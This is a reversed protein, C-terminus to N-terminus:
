VPADKKEKNQKLANKLNIKAKEKAEDVHIRAMHAKATLDVVHGQAKMGHENMKHVMALNHADQKHQMDMGHSKNENEMKQAEGLVGAKIGGRKTAEEANTLTVDTLARMSALDKQTDTKMKTKMLDAQRKPEDKAIEAELQSKMGSMQGQQVEEETKLFKEPEMINFAEMVKITGERGRVYPNQQFMQYMTVADRKRTEDNIPMTSGVEIDYIYDGKIDEKSMSLWPLLVTAGNEGVIKDLKKTVYPAVDEDKMQVNDLPIDLSDITQQCIKALKSVIRVTFGEFTAQQDGRLTQAAQEILKPETASEFKTSSLMESDSVGAMERITKKIGQRIMYIDQSITADAMPLISDVPNMTTEVVTGDGGNTLKYKEEQSLANERTIYRRQSIRAIHSMQMSSIRNLEDQLDLYMWTDPIPYFDTGNENFYLTEVPFGDYELPWSKENRIFRDHGEVVTILRHEKRDWIDWGEVRGWMDGNDPEVISDSGMIRSGFDTKVTFNPRLNTTNSYKPNKKLDNLARVWRLAIWRSDNLNSDIGEPDNRFDKPDRRVCYPSDAAILENTEILEDDKIKETELTYGLEMIGFPTLLADYLCKRSERKIQLEKYYYNLLLEVYVSSAITDFVGENTRFPKKKPKVYIKPNRHNLRPVIARINAFVVNDIPHERYMDTGVGNWQEGKYYNWARTSKDEITEYKRHAVSLREKWQQLENNRAM